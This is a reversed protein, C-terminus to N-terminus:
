MHVTRRDIKSQFNNVSTQNHCCIWTSTRHQRGSDGYTEAALLFKWILVAVRFKGSNEQIQSFGRHKSVHFTDFRDRQIQRSDTGQQQRSSSSSAQMCAAAM